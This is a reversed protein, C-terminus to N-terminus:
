EEVPDDPHEANWRAVLEDASKGISDKNLITAYLTETNLDRLMRPDARFIIDLEGNMRITPSFTGLGQVKVAQGARLAMLLTDRLEYVAQWVAGQSLATRQVLQEMLAETQMTRMRKLEPRYTRIATIKKAM